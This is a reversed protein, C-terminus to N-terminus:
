KLKVKIEELTKGAKKLADIKKIVSVTKHFDFVNMRGVKAIPILLGMSFYYAFKSKNVGLKQAIESLSAHKM